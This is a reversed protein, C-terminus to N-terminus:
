AELEEPDQQYENVVIDVCNFKVKNKKIFSFDESRQPLKIEMKKQNGSRKFGEIGEFPDVPKNDRPKPRFKGAAKFAPEFDVDGQGNLQHTPEEMDKKIPSGNTSDKACEDDESTM